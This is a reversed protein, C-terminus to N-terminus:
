VTESRETYEQLISIIKAPYKSFIVGKEANKTMMPAYFIAAVIVM